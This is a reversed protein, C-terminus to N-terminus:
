QQAAWSIFEDVTLTLEVTAQAGQAVLFETLGYDQQNDAWDYTYGLRTWPYDSGSFYSSEVNEEFWTQYDESEPDSTSFTNSVQATIDTSYAPRTMDAPDVWIATVYGKGSNAPIGLLQELRLTWDEVGESNAKYWNLFEGASTVWTEGWSLTVDEGAPYSDPYKHLVMMLAKDGAENWIVDESDATIEVLPKVEAEGALLSDRVALRYLEEMPPDESIEAAPNEGLLYFLDYLSDLAEYHKVTGQPELAGDGDEDGIIDNMVTWCLAEYSWDSVDAADTYDLPFAWLGSFGEGKGQAFRYLTVSLQERTLTGNPQFTGDGCGQTLGEEVAWSVASMLDEDEQSVDSFNATQESEPWGELQWITTFLEGRTVPSADEGAALGAAPLLGFTLAAASLLSLLTKGKRM